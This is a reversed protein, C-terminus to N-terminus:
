SIWGFFTLFVKSSYSQSDKPSKGKDFKGHVREQEEKNIEEM